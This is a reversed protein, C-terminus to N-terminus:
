KILRGQFSSITFDVPHLVINVSFNILFRMMILEFNHIYSKLLISKLLVCKRTFNCALNM